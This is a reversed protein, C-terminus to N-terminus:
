RRVTFCPHVFGLHRRTQAVLNHVSAGSMKLMTIIPKTLNTMGKTNLLTGIVFVVFEMNKYVTAYYMHLRYTYLTCVHEVCM